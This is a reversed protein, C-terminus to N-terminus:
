FIVHNSLPKFVHFPLPPSLFIYHSKLITFISLPIIIASPFYHFYIYLSSIHSWLYTQNYLPSLQSITPRSLLILLGGMYNFNLNKHDPLNRNAHNHQHLLHWLVNFLIFILCYKGLHSASFIIPYVRFHLLMTQM